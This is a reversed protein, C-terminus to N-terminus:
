QPAADAQETAQGQVQEAPAPAQADHAQQERTLLNKFEQEREQELQQAADEVGRTLVVWHNAGTEARHSDVHTHATM